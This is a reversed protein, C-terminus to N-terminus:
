IDGVCSGLGCPNRKWGLGVFRFQSLIVGVVVVIAFAANTLPLLLISVTTQADSFDFCHDHVESVRDNEGLLDYFIGANIDVFLFRLSSNIMCRGIHHTAISAIIGLGFIVFLFYLEIQCIALQYYALDVAKRKGIM